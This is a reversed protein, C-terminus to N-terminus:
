PSDLGAQRASVERWGETEVFLPYNIQWGPRFSKSHM